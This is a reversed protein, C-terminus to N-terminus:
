DVLHERRNGSDPGMLKYQLYNNHSRRKTFKCTGRISEYRTGNPDLRTFSNSSDAIYLVDLFILSVVNSQAPSAWLLEGNTKWKRTTADTGGSYLFGDHLLLAFVFKTHGVM